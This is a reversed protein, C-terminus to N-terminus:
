FGGQIFEKILAFAFKLARFVRLKIIVVFDVKPSKADYDAKINVNQKKVTAIGNLLGIAPYVAACVGGYYIATDSPKSAAVTIDLNLNEIECESVLAFIKSIIEKVTSLLKVTGDILGDERYIKKFYGEKKPKGEESSKKEAKKESSKKVQKVGQQGYLDYKFNLFLYKIVLFGNKNLCIKVRLSSFIVIGFLALIIALIILFLKM